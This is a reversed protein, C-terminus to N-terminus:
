LFITIYISKFDIVAYLRKGDSEKCTSSKKCEVFSPTGTSLHVLNGLIFRKESTSFLIQWNVSFRYELQSKGPNVFFARCFRGYYGWRM